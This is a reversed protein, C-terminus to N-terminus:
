HPRHYLLAGTTDLCALWIDEAGHNGSVDGDNSGTTGVTLTNGGNLYQYIVQSGQDNGTGGLCKQWQITPQAVALMPFLALAFASANVQKM